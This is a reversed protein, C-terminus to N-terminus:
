ENGKFNAIFSIINNTKEMLNFIAKDFEADVLTYCDEQIICICCSPLNEKNISQAYQCFGCPSISHRRIKEIDLYIKNWKKLSSEKAQEVTKIESIKDM